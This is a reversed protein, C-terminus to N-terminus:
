ESAPLEVQVEQEGAVKEDPPDVDEVEQRGTQPSPKFAPTSLQSSELEPSPSPQEEEQTMSAPYAHLPPLKVLLSEQEGM